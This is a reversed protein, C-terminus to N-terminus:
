RTKKIGRGSRRCHILRGQSAGLPALIRGQETLYEEIHLDNEKATAILSYLTASAQAGHISQSFFWNKRGIAFPRM